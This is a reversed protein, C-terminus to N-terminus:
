IRNLYISPKSFFIQQVSHQQSEGEHDRCIWLAKHWHSLFTEPFKDACPLESCYNQKRWVVKLEEEVKWATQCLPVSAVLIFESLSLIGAWVNQTGWKKPTNHSRHAPLSMFLLKKERVIRYLGKSCYLILPARYLPKINKYFCFCWELIFVELNIVNRFGWSKSCLQPGKSSKGAVVTILFGLHSAWVSQMYFLWEQFNIAALERIVIRQPCLVQKHQCCIKLFIFKRKNLLYM